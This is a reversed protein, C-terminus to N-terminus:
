LACLKARNRASLTTARHVLAYLDTVIAIVADLIASVIMQAATCNAVSTMEMTAQLRDICGRHIEVTPRLIPRSVLAKVAEVSALTSIVRVDLLRLSLDTRAASCGRCVFVALISMRHGGLHRDFPPVISSFAISDGHDSMLVIPNVLPHERNDCSAFGITM